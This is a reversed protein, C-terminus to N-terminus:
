EQEMNVVVRFGIASYYYSPPKNNFRYASRCNYANFNWAGGRIPRTDTSQLVRQSFEDDTSDIKPQWRNLCWEFVNGHMDYLGWANPLYSGVKATGNSPSCSSFFGEGGNHWYRGVEDMNPCLLGTISKGSNLATKTGARCAYEWQEETPLTFNLGTKQQLRKIFSPELFMFDDFGDLKNRLKNEVRGMIMNYSVCEVPRTAYYDPNKFFSPNMGMVLEWQRQTVPFVGIYYSNTLSAVHRDEYNKLRGIEDEPSGMYFSSIFIRRLILYESKYVDAWANDTSTDLYAVPYYDALPGESLNVILYDSPMNTLSFCSFKILFDSEAFCNPHRSQFLPDDIFIIDHDKMNKNNGHNLKTEEPMRELIRCIMNILQENGSVFLHANALSGKSTFYRYGGMDGIDIRYTIHGPLYHSWKRRSFPILDGIVSWSLIKKIKVSEDPTLMECYPFHLNTSKIYLINDDKLYFRKNLFLNFFIFIFPLLFVVFILIVLLKKMIVGSKNTIKLM